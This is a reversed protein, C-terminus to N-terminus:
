GPPWGMRRGGLVHLHVHGVLQGGEEGTNAALRYGDEAVGENHAVTGAVDLLEAALAPEDRALGVLTAHHAKPIVLVHVPAQPEIDRFALVTDTQHVIDVSVEGAVMTCFLCDESSM